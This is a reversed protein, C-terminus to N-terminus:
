EAPTVDVEIMGDDTMPVPQAIASTAPAPQVVDYSAAGMTSQVAAPDFQGSTLPRPASVKEPHRRPELFRGLEYADREAGPCWAGETLDVQNYALLSGKERHFDRIALNYNSISQYFESESTVVQRQAQLLFNINDTGDRYRRRLVEVQRLDALYRNYNTEVLEFTLDIARAADSLDHSIRLETEALVARERQLNLKAHAVASSAARLGIPALFEVGATWEQYNGGTISDVLNDNLGQDGPGILNDGLGRWRYQGVFDVQPRRNLRSALLEMERRKVTFKQRRVEVRRDLAQGLASQWDFVVKANLPDSTPRLLSGDTAPLGILYRLAQERAYLGTEGALASKVQAEFQYYQSRAQAEEDRRGTGVELRVQQYQFTQLASERGKANAELLRYSTTLDWYAQEVDSVLQIVAAEFDALAVDENVRAILVGNYQGIAGSAGASGAIRNYTTGAGRMLPQRYEAELFGIFDSQFQRFPRNNRDYGVNSRLAFQAGTATRKSLENAFTAQTAQFTTPTFAAGLGGTAINQPQDLKNWFLSQSYQADFNALAAEVGGLPDAHALGPTFVTTASQPASVVAGGITRLVPSSRLAQQVAQELTLEVSPLNAPDELTNPQVASVAASIVPTACQNVEPYEIRMASHDHYSTKTDHPGDPIKQAWHCGSTLTSAAVAVGLWSALRRRRTQKRSSLSTQRDM